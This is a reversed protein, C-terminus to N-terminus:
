VDYHVGFRNAFERTAVERMKRVANYAKYPDVYGVSKRDDARKRAQEFRQDRSSAAALEEAFQKMEDVTGCALPQRSEGEIIFLVSIKSAEHKEIVLKSGDPLAARYRTAKGKTTAKWTLTQRTAPSTPEPNKAATDKKDTSSATTKKATAKKATTQKEVSKATAKKAPTKATAKKVTTKATTKKATTKATTKKATTKATAKKATTKKAVRKKAAKKATPRTDSKKAAAQLQKVKARIDNLKLQPRDRYEWLFNQLGADGYKWHRAVLMLCEAPSLKHLLGEGKGWTKGNLPLSDEAQAAALADLYRSILVAEDSPNKGAKRALAQQAAKVGDGEIGQAVLEEILQHSRRPQYRGKLITIEQGHTESHAAFLGQGGPVQLYIGDLEAVRARLSLLPVDEPKAAVWVGTNLARTKDWNAPRNSPEM